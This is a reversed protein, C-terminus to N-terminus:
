NLNLWYNQEWQWWIISVNPENLLAYRGSVCTNAIRHIIIAPTFLSCHLWQLACDVTIQVVSEFRLSFVVAFVYESFHLILLFELYFPIPPLIVNCDTCYFGKSQVSSHHRLKLYKLLFQAFCGFLLWIGSVNWESLDKKWQISPKMVFQSCDMWEKCDSFSQGTKM